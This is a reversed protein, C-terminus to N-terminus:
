ASVTEHLQQDHLLVVGEGSCEVFETSARGGAAPKVLRPVVRGIWGALVDCEVYIVSDPSLKVSLLPKPTRTALCGAGRFQAIRFESGPIRGNEWRLEPDFAYVYEERLYVADGDLQVATFVEDGASAILYGEGTVTLLQADGKGFVEDTQQGRVRRTAPEYGLDGCSVMVGQTRSILQRRVRAILVGGFGIELIEGGEDPRLMRETALASVTQPPQHGIPAEKEVLLSPEIKSVAQTVVGHQPGRPAGAKGLELNMEEAQKDKEETETTSAPSQEITGSQVMSDRESLELVESKPSEEIPAPTPPVAEFHLDEYDGSEVVESGQSVRQRIDEQEQASLYQEMEAALAKEDARLFAEFAAGYAGARAHALGLYSVTRVQSPDLQRSRELEEIAREPRDQKLHVLGFNLRYSADNPSMGVLTAYVRNAAEFDALRFCTLGLLGLIKEDGPALELADEFCGRAEEVEDRQLLEAGRNVLADLGQNYSPSLTDAVIGL